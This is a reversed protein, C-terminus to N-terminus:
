QRHRAFAVTFTVSSFTGATVNVRVYRDVTGAVALRQSTVGTVSAFTILDAWDSNNVSDQVVITCNTGAFATVHLNAVGGFASSAAADVSASAGTTTAATLARLSVGPRVPGSGTFQASIRVLDNVPANANYSALHGDFLFARNGITAGGFGVTVPRTGVAALGDLDEDITAADWNGGVTLSGELLGAVFVQDQNGFTTASVAQQARSANYDNLYGTWAADAGFVVSDKGHVFAM